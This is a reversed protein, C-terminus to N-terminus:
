SICQYKNVATQLCFELECNLLNKLTSKAILSQGEIVYASNYATDSFDSKQVLTKDVGPLTTQVRCYM